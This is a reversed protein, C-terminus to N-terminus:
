MSTPSTSVSRPALAGLKSALPPTGSVVARLETEPIGAASALWAVNTRRHNMLRTLLVGFGPHSAM